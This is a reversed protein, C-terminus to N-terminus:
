HESPDDRGSLASLRDTEVNLSPPEIVDLFHMPQIM